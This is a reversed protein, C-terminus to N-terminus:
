AVQKIEALQNFEEDSMKMIEEHKHSPINIKKIIEWRLAYKILIESTTMFIIIAVNNMTGFLLSYYTAIM